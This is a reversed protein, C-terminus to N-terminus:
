KRKPKPARNVNYLRCIQSTAYVNWCSWAMMLQGALAHVQYFQWATVMGLGTIALCLLLALDLRHARYFSFPWAYELAMYLWFRALPSQVLVGLKEASCPLGGGGPLARWVLSSAFGLTLYGALYVPCFIWSPPYYAPKRLSKHWKEDCGCTVFVVLSGLYPLLAFLVQPVAAGIREVLDMM